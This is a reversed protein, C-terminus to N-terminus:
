GSSGRGFGRRAEWLLGFHARIVHMLRIKSRGTTRAHLTAPVERVDAGLQIARLLQETIGAFGGREPWSARLVSVKQARVMSTFTRIRAGSNWRHLVSAQRSLFVRWGPVGVLEGDPHHCSSIAVEAGADIAAALATLTEPRYSLDADLWAVAVEDDADWSGTRLAETLGRNQEHIRLEHGFDLEEAVKHLESASGDASGDDVFM